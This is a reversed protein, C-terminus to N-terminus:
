GKNILYNTKKRWISGTGLLINGQAFGLIGLPSKGDWWAGINGLKQHIQHQQEQRLLNQLLGHVESDPQQSRPLPFPLLDAMLRQLPSGWSFQLNSIVFNLYNHNSKPLLTEINKMCTKLTHSFSCRMKHFYFFSCRKNLPYKRVHTMSSYIIDKLQM